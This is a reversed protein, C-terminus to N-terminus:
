ILNPLFILVSVAAGYWLWKSKLYRRAGTFMVGAILGAVLFPMSYKSLMGLGIGGGIAIWWGPNESKLLRLTFYATLVWSLYDFSVYQMLAGGGLCFPVAAMAAVLQAWRGGGLQRAMLGTLVVAGAEAVAAFFRFGRLSTGFLELSLRGFFPTVPPYAV